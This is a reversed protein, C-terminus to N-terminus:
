ATLKLLDGAQLKAMESAPISRLVKKSKRDVVFITVDKTQDDVRFQLSVSSANGVLPASVSEAAKSTKNDHTSPKEQASVVAKAAASAAAAPGAEVQASTRPATVVEVPRYNNGIAGFTNEKM